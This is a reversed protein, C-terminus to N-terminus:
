PKKLDNCLRLFSLEKKGSASLKVLSRGDGM